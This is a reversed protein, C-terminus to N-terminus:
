FIRHGLWSESMGKTLPEDSSEITIENWTVGPGLTAQLDNPDVEMVVKPHRRERSAL